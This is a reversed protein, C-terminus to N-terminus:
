GGKAPRTSRCVEDLWKRGQGSKLFVERVRAAKYDQHVETMVVDFAGLAQGGKTSGQRHETVRRELNNTIGVYRKGNQRSRLVYVYIM